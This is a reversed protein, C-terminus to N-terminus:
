LNRMLSDTTELIDGAESIQWSRLCRANSPDLLLGTLHGGFGSRTNINIDSTKIEVQEVVAHGRVVTAGQWNKPIGYTWVLEETPVREIPIDADIFGGHVFLLSGSRFFAPRARLWELIQSREVSPLTPLTESFTREDFGKGHRRGELIEKLMWDHNGLLFIWDRHRQSATMLVRLVGGSDPGRDIYDGLFVAPVGLDESLSVAAEAAGRHGHIDGFCLVAGTSDGQSSLDPAPNSPTRATM